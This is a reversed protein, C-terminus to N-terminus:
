KVWKIKRWCGNCQDNSAHIKYSCEPCRYYRELKSEPEMSSGIYYPKVAITIAVKDRQLFIYDDNHRSVSLDRIEQYSNM